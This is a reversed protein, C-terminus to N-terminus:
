RYQKNTKTDWTALASDRGSGKNIETGYAPDVDKLWTYGKDFTMNFSGSGDAAFTGHAKAANANLSAVLTTIIAGSPLGKQFTYSNEIAVTDEVVPQVETALDITKGDVTVTGSVSITNSGTALKYATPNSNATCNDDQCGVGM